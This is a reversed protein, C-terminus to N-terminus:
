MEKTSGVAQANEPMEPRGGGLIRLAAAENKQEEFPIKGTFVEIVIMGLAFIDPPAHNGPDAM